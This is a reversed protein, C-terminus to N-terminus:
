SIAFSQSWFFVPTLLTFGLNVGTSIHCPFYQPNKVTRLTAREQSQVSMGVRVARVSSRSALNIFCCSVRPMMILGSDVRGSSVLSPGVVSESITSGVKLECLSRSRKEQHISSCISIRGGIKGGIASPLRHKTCLLESIEELEELFGFWLADFPFNYGGANWERFVPHAHNIRRKCWGQKFIEDSRQRRYGRNSM